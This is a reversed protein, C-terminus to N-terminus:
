IEEVTIKIREITKVITIELEKELAEWNEAEFKIVNPPFGLTDDPMLCIIFGDECFVFVDGDDTLFGEATDFDVKKELVVKSSIKM